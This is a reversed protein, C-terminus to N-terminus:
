GEIIKWLLMLVVITAMVCLYVSTFRYFRVFAAIEARREASDGNM